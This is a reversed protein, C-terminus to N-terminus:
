KLQELNWRETGTLSREVAINMAQSDVLREVLNFVVRVLGSSMGSQGQNMGVKNGLKELVDMIADVPNAKLRGSIPIIDQGDVLMPRGFEDYPRYYVTMNMLATKPYWKLLEKLIGGLFDVLEKDEAPTLADDHKFYETEKMGTLKYEAPSTKATPMRVGYTVTRAEGTPITVHKVSEPRRTQFMDTPVQVGMVRIYPPIRKWIKVIRWRKNVRFREERIVHYNRELNDVKMLRRQVYPEVNHVKKINGSKTQRMASKVLADSQAFVLRYKRSYLLKQYITKRQGRRRIQHKLRKMPM